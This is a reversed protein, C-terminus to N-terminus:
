EFNKLFIELEDTEEIKSIGKKIYDPREIDILLVIRKTESLNFGSHKKSDDFVLWENEKQERKEGNVWIGCNEPVKLGLHCRLVNNALKGWGQHPKLITKPGLCSIIATKLGPINKLLNVTEPFRECYSNAWKNFGYFPIIKWDTLHLYLDREPWDLWEKDYINVENRIKESNKKLNELFPFVYEYDYFNNDM